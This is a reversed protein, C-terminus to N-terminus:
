PTVPDFSIGTLSTNTASGGSTLQVLGATTVVWTATGAASHTVFRWNAAPRYGVPLTFVTDPPALAVSKKVLGKIWVQGTADKRYGAAVEGAGFNAWNAALAPALWGSDTGFQDLKAKDAAAMLGDLAATALRTAGDRVSDLRARDAVSMLGRHKATAPRRDALPRAGDPQVAPPTPM